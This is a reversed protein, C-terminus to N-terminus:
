QTGPGKGDSQADQAFSNEIDFFSNDIDSIRTAPGIGLFRSQHKLRTTYVWHQPTMCEAAGQCAYGCEPFGLRYRGEPGRTGAYGLYEKLGLPSEFALLFRV